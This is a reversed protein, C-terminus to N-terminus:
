TLKTRTTRCSSLLSLLTKSKMEWFISLQEKEEFSLLVFNGSWRCAKVRFGDLQLAQQVLDADHMAKICGVLCQELWQYEKELIVVSIGNNCSGFRRRRRSVARSSRGKNGLLRRSRTM